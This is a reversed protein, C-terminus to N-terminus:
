AHAVAELADAAAVVCYSDDSCDSQNDDLPEDQNSADEEVVVVEEGDDMPAYLTHLLFACLSVAIGAHHQRRTPRRIRMIKSKTTKDFHSKSDLGYFQCVAHILLRHYSSEVLPLVLVSDKHKAPRTRSGGAKTERVVPTTELVRMPGSLMNALVPDLEITSMVENWKVFHVIVDEIAQIYIHMADFSAALVSRARRDIRTFMDDAEHWADHRRARHTQNQNSNSRAHSPEKVSRFADAIAENEPQALKQFNSKWDVSIAMHEMLEDLSATAARNGFHHDNFYRNQTRRGIPPPKSALYPPVMQRQASGILHAAIMRERAINVRGYQKLIEKREHMSPAGLPTLDVLPGIPGESGTESFCDSSLGDYDEEDVISVDSVSRPSSLMM